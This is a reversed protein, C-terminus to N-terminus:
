LFKEAKNLKPIEPSVKVITDFESRSCLTYTFLEKDGELVQKECLRIFQDFQTVSKFVQSGESYNFIYEASSTPSSRHIVLPFNGIETPSEYDYKKQNRNRQVASTEFKLCKHNSEGRYLGLTLNDVYQGLRLIAVNIPLDETGPILGPVTTIKYEFFQWEQKENKYFVFLDDDFTNTVKERVNRMGVINLVNETDYIVYNKFRLYTILRDLKPNSKTSNKAPLSPVKTLNSFLSPQLLTSFNFDSGQLIGPLQNVLGTGLQGAQNLFDNQPPNQGAVGGPIQNSLDPLNTNTPLGLSSVDGPLGPTGPTEPLNPTGPLTPTEPLNPSGPLGPTGTTPVSGTNGAIVNTSVSGSIPLSATSGVLASMDIDDPVGQEVPPAKYNEDYPPKEGSVPSFNESTKTTLNNEQKTSTWNDGLQPDDERATTKITTVQNNNVCNVHHSLFQTTKLAQYKMCTQIFAPNPVGAIHTSAGPTMLATVFEDFWQFFNNGLIVQQNATEDGLNLSRNNDKLNLNISNEKININNYKHDIKLGEGENVYIQTRHDFILSKMSLYDPDNLSKLKNELNVNFHESFVFEPKYPDAHEFEVILVKGVDPVNFGNGNLDKWPSAWPIDEVSMEEYIDLVRIKLRGTKQPDKNDEVVGLYTKGLEVKLNKM